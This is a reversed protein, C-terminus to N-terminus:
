PVRFRRTIESIPKLSGDEYRNEPDTDDYILRGSAIGRVDLPRNTYPNYVWGPRGPVPIAYRYEPQVPPLPPLDQIPTDGLAASPVLVEAQSDRALGAAEQRSRLERLESSTASDGAQGLPLGDGPAANGAANIQSPNAWASEEPQVACSVLGLVWVLGGVRAIWFMM